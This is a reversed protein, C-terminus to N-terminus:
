GTLAFLDIRLEPRSLSGKKMPVLEANCTFRASTCRDYTPTSCKMQLAPQDMRVTDEEDWGLPALEIGTPTEVNCAEVPAINWSDDTSDDVNVIRDPFIKGENM